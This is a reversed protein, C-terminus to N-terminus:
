LGSIQSNEIKYAPTRPLAAHSILIAGHQLAAQRHEGVSGTADDVVQDHGFGVVAVEVDDGVGAASEFVHRM